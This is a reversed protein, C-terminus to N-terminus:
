SVENTTWRIRSCGVLSCELQHLDLWALQGHRAHLSAATRPLYGVPVHAAYVARGGPLVSSHRSCGSPRALTPAQVNAFSQLRSIQVGRQLQKAPLNPHASGRADQALDDCRQFFRTLACLNCGPTHTWAGVCPICLYRRSPGVEPLPQCSGAIAVRLLPLSAVHLIHSQRILEYSRHRLPLARRPPVRHWGELPLAELPCLLERRKTPM